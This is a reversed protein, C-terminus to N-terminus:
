YSLYSDLLRGSVDALCPGLFEERFYVQLGGRQNRRRHRRACAHLDGGGGVRAGLGAVTDQHTLSPPTVAPGRWEWVEEGRSEKGVQRRRGHTRQERRGVEDRNTGGGGAGRGDRSLCM